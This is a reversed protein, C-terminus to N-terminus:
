LQPRALCETDDTPTNTHTHAFIDDGARAREPAQGWLCSVPLLDRRESQQPGGVAPAPKACRCIVYPSGMPGNGAACIFFFLQGQCKAECAPLVTTCVPSNDHKIVNGQAAAGQLLGSACAVLLLALAASRAGRRSTPHGAVM